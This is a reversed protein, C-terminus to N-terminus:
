RFSKQRHRLGIQFLPDGIRGNVQSQHGGQYLGTQIGQRLNGGHHIEEVPQRFVAIREVEMLFHFGVLLVRQLGELQHYRDELGHGLPGELGDM